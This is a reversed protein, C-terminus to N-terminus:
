QCFGDLMGCPRFTFAPWNINFTCLSNLVITSQQFLLDFHLLSTVYFHLDPSATRLILCAVSCYRVLYRRGTFVIHSGALDLDTKEPKTGGPPGTVWESFFVSILFLVCDQSDRYWVPVNAFSECLSLKFWHKPDANTEIRIRIWFNVFCHQPNTVNQNPDPDASGYRRSISGPVLEPDSEKRWHSEKLSAFYFDNKKM